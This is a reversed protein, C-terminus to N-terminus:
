VVATLQDPFDPTIRDLNHVDSFVSLVEDRSATVVPERQLRFLSGRPRQMPKSSNNIV